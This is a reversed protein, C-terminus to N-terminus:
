SHFTKRMSSSIQNGFIGGQDDGTINGVKSNAAVDNLVSSLVGKPKAAATAAPAATATATNVGQRLLRKLHKKAKKLWKGTYGKQRAKKIAKRLKELNNNNIADKLKKKLHKKQRKSLTIGRLLRRRRKSLCEISKNCANWYSSILIAICVGVLLYKFLYNFKSGLKGM